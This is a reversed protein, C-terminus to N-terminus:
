DEVEKGCKPGKVKFINAYFGDDCDSTFELGVGEQEEDRCDSLGLQQM